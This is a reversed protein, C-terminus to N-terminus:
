SSKVVKRNLATTDELAGDILLKSRLYKALDTETIIGVLNGNELVLLRRINKNIMKQVADEIPTMPEVWRFNHSMIESLPVDSSKRDSTSVKRALDRETVLGIPTGDKIVVLSSIEKEALLFAVDKATKDHEITIVNRVMIDRVQGM